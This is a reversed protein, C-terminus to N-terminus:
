EPREVPSFLHVHGVALHGLRRGIGVHGYYRYPALATLRGVARLIFEVQILLFLGHDLLHTLAISLCSLFDDHQEVHATRDFGSGPLVKDVGDDASPLAAFLHAVANGVHERSM